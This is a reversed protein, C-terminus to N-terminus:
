EYKNRRLFDKMEKEAQDIEKEDTKNTKKEYAHLLIIKNKFFHFFFVRTASPRLEYIKNRLHKIANPKFKKNIAFGFEKLYDFYAKIALVEDDKNNNALKSIYKKSLDIVQVQKM